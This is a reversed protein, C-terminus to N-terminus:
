RRACEGSPLSVAPLRYDYEEALQLYRAGIAYILHLTCYDLRSSMPVDPSLKYAPRLIQRQEGLKHIRQVSLFPHKTHVKNLYAAILSKSMSTSPMTAKVGSSTMDNGGGGHWGHSWGLSGDTPLWTNSGVTTDGSEEPTSIAAQMMTALPFGSSIGLYSSNPPLDSMGTSVVHDQPPATAIDHQERQPEVSARLHRTSSQPDSETYVSDHGDASRAGLPLVHHEVADLRAELSRVYGTPRDEEGYTCEQSAALCAGCSPYGNDCRHKRSKCRLCAVAGRRRKLPRRDPM